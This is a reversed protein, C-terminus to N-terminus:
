ISIPDRPAFLVMTMPVCMVMTESFVFGILVLGEVVGPPLLGARSVVEDPDKVVLLAEDPLPCRSHREEFRSRCVSSM